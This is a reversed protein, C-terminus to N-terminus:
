IVELLEKQTFEIEICDIEKQIAKQGYDLSQMLKQKSEIFDLWIQEPLISGRFPVLRSKEAATKLDCAYLDRLKKQLSHIGVKEEGISIYCDALTKIGTLIAHFSEEALTIQEIAKDSKRYFWNEFFSRTTNPANLISEKLSKTAQNIGTNLTQTANVILHFQTSKRTTLLADHYQQIGSNIIAIRDNHLSTSIQSIGKKIDKLECAITILSLQISLTSCTKVFNSADNPKLRIHELIKGDKYWVGKIYGNSDLFLKSNDPFFKIKYLTEPSLNKSLISHYPLFKLTKLLISRNNAHNSPFKLKNM